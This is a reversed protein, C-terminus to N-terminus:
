NQGAAILDSRSCYITGPVHHTPIPSGELQFAPEQLHKAAWCLQTRLPTCLQTSPKPTCRTWALRECRKGDRRWPPRQPQSRLRLREFPNHGASDPYPGKELQVGSSFMVGVRIAEKSTEWGWADSSSLVFSFPDVEDSLTPTRGTDAPVNANTSPPRTVLARCASTLSVCASDPSV